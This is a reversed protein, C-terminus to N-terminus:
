IGGLYDLGLITKACSTGTSAAGDSIVGYMPATCDGAFYLNEIDPSKQSIKPTASLAYHSGGEGGGGVQLEIADKFGPYLAEQIDNMEAMVAEKGRAEWDAVSTLYYMWVLAKGEPATAPSEVSQPYVGGIHSGTKPDTIMIYGADMPLATKLCTIASAGMIHISLPDKLCADVEAPMTKFLKPIEQWFAAVVVRDAYIIEDPQGERAIRVGVAKGDEILVEAVETETRIVGGLREIADGFPKTLAEYMDPQLVVTAGEGALWARIMTFSRGASAKEWTFDADGIFGMNAALTRFVWEVEPNSSREHIWDRLLVDAWDECMQKFPLSVMDAFVRHLEERLGPAVPGHGSAELLEVAFDAMSGPSFCRPVRLHQTDTGNFYFRPETSHYYRVDADLDRAALAWFGGHQSSMLLPIHIYANYGNFRHVQARGGIVKRKDVILTKQGAKALYGGCILGAFGAGVVINDYREQM